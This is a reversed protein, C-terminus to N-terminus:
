SKIKKSDQIEARQLGINSDNTYGGNTIIGIVENFLDYEEHQIIKTTKILKRAMSSKHSVLYDQCQTLAEEGLTVLASVRNEVMTYGDKLIHRLICDVIRKHEALMEYSRPNKVESKKISKILFDYVANGYVHEFGTIDIKDDSERHDDLYAMLQNAIKLTNVNESYNKRKRFFYAEYDWEAELTEYSEVIKNLEVYQTEIKHDAGYTQCWVKGEEDYGYILVFNNYRVVDGYDPNKHQDCTVVVYVDHEIAKRIDGALNDIHGIVTLKEIPSIRDDYIGDFEFDAHAGNHNKVCIPIYNNCMFEINEDAGGSMMKGELYYENASTVVYWGDNVAERIYKVIDESVGTFRRKDLGDPYTELIGEYAFDVHSSLPHRVVLPIYKNCIINDYDKRDLIM